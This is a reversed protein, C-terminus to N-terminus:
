EELKAKISEATMKHHPKKGFKMEYLESLDSDSLGLDDKKKAGYFEEESVTEWGNDINSNAELNNYAIHKGHRPHKQFIM